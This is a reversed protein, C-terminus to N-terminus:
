PHLISGPGIDSGIVDGLAADFHQHAPHRPFQRRLSQYRRLSGLRSKLLKFLKRYDEPTKNIAKLMEPSSEQLLLNEDWNKCVFKVVHDVYLQSEKLNATLTLGKRHDIYLYLILLAILAALSLGIIIFNRM